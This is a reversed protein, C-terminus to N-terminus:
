LLSNEMGGRFGYPKANFKYIDFNNKSWGEKSKLYIAMDEWYDGKKNYPVSSFGKDKKIFEALQDWETNAPLHWGTPCAKKAAEWQYYVGYKDCNNVKDEFCWSGKESKYILNEAMWTQDGIKATKYTKSDRTDTFTGTQQALLLVKCFVLLFVVSIKKM